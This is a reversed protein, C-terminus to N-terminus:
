ELNVTINGVGEPLWLDTTRLDIGHDKLFTNLKELCDADNLEGHRPLVVIHENTEIRYLRDALMELDKQSYGTTVGDALVYSGDDNIDFMFYDVILVSFFANDRQDFYFLESIRDVPQKLGTMLWNILQTEQEM